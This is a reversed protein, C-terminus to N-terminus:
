LLLVQGHGRAHAAHCEVSLVDNLLFLQVLFAAKKIGGTFFRLTKQTFGTEGAAM